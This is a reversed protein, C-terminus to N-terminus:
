NLRKLKKHLATLNTKYDQCLNQVPEYMPKVPILDFVQEFDLKSDFLMKVSGQLMSQVGEATENEGLGYQVSLDHLQKIQPWFYTPGMATLIAYAELTDEEVIPHDGLIKFLTIFEAQHHNDVGQAFCIPNYGQNIYSAANPITRVIKTHGGLLDTMESITIVPVLSIVLSDSDLRAALASLVLKMEPPHVALFIWDQDGIDASGVATIHYDPYTQKLAKVADKDPDYVLIKEIEYNQNKLGALLIRVIRGGGIFAISKNM